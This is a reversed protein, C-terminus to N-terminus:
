TKQGGKVSQDGIKTTKDTFGWNAFWVSRKGSAVGLGVLDIVIIQSIKDIELKRNQVKDDNLKMESLTIVIDTWDERAKIIKHFSEGGSEKVQVWLGGPKDSRVQFRMTNAGKIPPSKLDKICARHTRDMTTTWRMTKKGGVEEFSVDDKPYVQFIDRKNSFGIRQMVGQKKDTADGPPQAAAQTGVPSDLQAYGVVMTACFGALSAALLQIRNM